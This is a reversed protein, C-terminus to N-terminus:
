ALGLDEPSLDTGPVELDHKLGVCIICGVAMITQTAECQPAKWAHGPVPEIPSWPVLLPKPLSYLWQGSHDCGRSRRGSGGASLFPPHPLLRQVVWAVTLDM